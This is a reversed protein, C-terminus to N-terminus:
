VHCHRKSTLLSKAFHMTILNWRDSLPDVNFTNLLEGDSLIDPFAIMHLARKQICEMCQAQVVTMGSSWVPAGFEVMPLIYMKYIQFCILLYKLLIFKMKM